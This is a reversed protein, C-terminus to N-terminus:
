LPFNPDIKQLKHALRDYHSQLWKGVVQQEEPSLAEAPRSLGDTQSQKFRTAREQNKSSRLNQLNALQPYRQELQELSAAVASDPLHEESM